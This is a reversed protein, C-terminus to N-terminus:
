GGSRKETEWGFPFEGGFSEPSDTKPDGALLSYTTSFM